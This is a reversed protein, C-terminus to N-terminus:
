SLKMFRPLMTANLMGTRYGLIGVTHAIISAFLLALCTNRKSKNEWHKDLNEFGLLISSWGAVEGTITALALSSIWPRALHHM